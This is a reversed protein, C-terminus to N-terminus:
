GHCFLGFHYSIVAAEMWFGFSVREGNGSLPAMHPEEALMDTAHVTPCCSCSADM